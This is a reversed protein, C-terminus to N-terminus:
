LYFLKNSLIYFYLQFNVIFNLTLTKELIIKYIKLLYIIYIKNKAIM